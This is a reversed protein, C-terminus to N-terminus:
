IRLRCLPALLNAAEPGIAAGFDRLGKKRIQTIGWLQPDGKRYLPDINVFAGWDFSGLETVAGGLANGHGCIYKTLSNLAVSAQVAKPCFLYPSTMTNDVVYVLGREQCLQGIAALDAIQTRPNALFPQTVKTRCDTWFCSISNRGARLGKCKPHRPLACIGHRNRLHQLCMGFHASDVIWTQFLVWLM